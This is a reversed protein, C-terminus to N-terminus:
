ATAAAETEQGLIAKILSKPMVGLWSRVTMKADIIEHASVSRHIQINIRQSRMDYGSKRDYAGDNYEWTHGAPTNQETIFECAKTLTDIKSSGNRETIREKFETWGSGDWEMEDLAICASEQDTQSKIIITFSPVGAADWDERSFLASCVTVINEELAEQSGGNFVLEADQLESEGVYPDEQEQKFMDLVESTVEIIYEPSLLKNVSVPAHELLVLEHEDTDEITQVNFLDAKADNVITASSCVALNPTLIAVYDSSDTIYGFRVVIKRDSKNFHLLYTNYAPHQLPLLYAAWEESFPTVEAKSEKCFYHRYDPQIRLIQALGASSFPVTITADPIVGNVAAITDKRRTYRTTFNVASCKAFSLPGELSSLEPGEEVFLELDFVLGAKNGEAKGQKLSTWINNRYHHVDSPQAIGTTNVGLYKLDAFFCNLLRLDTGTDSELAQM